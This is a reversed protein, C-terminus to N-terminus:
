ENRDLMARYRARLEAPLKDLLATQLDAPEIEVGILDGTWNTGALHGDRAM